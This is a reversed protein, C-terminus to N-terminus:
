ARWRLRPVVGDRVIGGVQCWWGRARLQPDAALDAPTAVVAAPFGAAQMRAVVAEAARRPATLLHDLAAARRDPAPGDAAPVSVACWRELGDADRCRYLRGAAQWSAGDRAAALLPALMLGLVDRQSLALRAATGHWLAATIALAAAWATATDAYAFGPGAPRGAGDRMADVLGSMAQLTPGFAAWDARPDGPPFGTLHAIVLRPNLARLADDDFGLNPLVRASFNDVLVDADRLLARLQARGDATRLDLRLRRKGRQLNADTTGHPPPADPREVRIVEAGHDALIRTTLPGAVVWTLDIVRAGRLPRPAVAPGPPPALLTPTPLAPLARAFRALSWVPAFALRRAQAQQVLADVAYRGAWAELVDFVHAAHRCREDVDDWRAATLDQAAGDARLWERLATWDGVHTLLVEGDRCRGVRFTGSWHLSGRRRALDGHDFWEGTVHELTAAASEQLSVDVLPARGDHQRAMLALLAGLAAHLGACRTAPAGPLPLPPEAPHGNPWVMGGAAQATLEDGAWDARPGDLGFPTVVVWVLRPWEAARALWPRAAGGAVVVDARALAAARLPGPEVDAGLAALVEVAFRGHEDAADLVRM